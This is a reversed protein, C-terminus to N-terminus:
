QKIVKFTRQGDENYIRLTYIGDALGGIDLTSKEAKYLTKDGSLVMRGSLDLIDINLSSLNSPNLIHIKDSTPNPYVSLEAFMQEEISSECPTFVEVTVIATDAPCVGNSVVYLYEYSGPNDSVYFQTNGLLEGNPNYWDGGLDVNGSLGEFLQISTGQCASIVGDNGASSVNFVNINAIASDKIYVNNCLSEVMYKIEYNQSPLSSFDFISGNILHQINQIKWDGWDTAPTIITSLDIEGELRCVDIYGDTGAETDCPVIRITYDEWEGDSFDTECPDTNGSSSLRDSLVRMRTEVPTITDNITITGTHNLSYSSTQFVNEDTSFQGDKNFDIWIRVGASSGVSEIEFDFSEGVNVKVRQDSFEGYGNPSFGTNQNDINELGGTTVFSNIFYNPNDGVPICYCDEPAKIYASVVGTTDSEGSVNCVMYFRFDTPETIGLPLYLETTNAGSINEWINAGNPERKQWQRSMNSAITAGEAVFTLPVSECAGFIPDQNIIGADPTGMCEDAIVMLTYDEFEGSSYGTVCPDAPGSNPTLSNGIRMRTQGPLASLPINVVGSHSSGYANSNWAVETNEDFHGDKNWDIWIKFGYTSTGLFDVNFNFSGGPAESVIMSTFDGYGDTSFGSTLNSINDVGGTTSFNDIGRATNTAEPICYCDLPLNISLSVADTTDSETSADCVIYFRFDTPVSIGNPLYLSSSTAGSIDTWTNTGSPERKQWQRTLGSAITNGTLQLNLPLNPCVSFPQAVDIVGAEPIGACPTPVFIDPGSLDMMGGGESCPSTTQSPWSDVWIYYETQEVANFTLTRTSTTSRTAVVCTGNDSPCGDYVFVATWDINHITITVQGNSEPVYLYLAELGDGYYTSITSGDDQDTCWPGVSGTNLNDVTGCTLPLDVFNSVSLPIADACNYQAFTFNYQSTLFFGIFTIILFDSIKKYINEM